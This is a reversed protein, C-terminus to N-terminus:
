VGRTFGMGQWVHEKQMPYMSLFLGIRTMCIEVYPRGAPGTKREIVCATATDYVKGSIVKRM